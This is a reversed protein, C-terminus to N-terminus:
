GVGGLLQPSISSFCKDSVGLATTNCYQSVAPVGLLDLLEDLTAKSARCTEISCM